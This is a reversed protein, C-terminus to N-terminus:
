TRSSRVYSREFHLLGESECGKVDINDPITKTAWEPCGRM